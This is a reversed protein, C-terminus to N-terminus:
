KHQPWGEQAFLRRRQAARLRAEELTRRAEESLRQFDAACFVTEEKASRFSREFFRAEEVGAAEITEAHYDYGQPSHADSAAEDDDDSKPDASVESPQSRCSYMLHEGGGGAESEEDSGSGAGGEGRKLSEQSFLGARKRNFSGSLNAGAVRSSRLFLQRQLLARQSDRNLSRGEGGGGEQSHTELSSPLATAAAAALSAGAAEPFVLPVRESSGVSPASCQPTQVALSNSSLFGNFDLQLALAGLSAHSASQRLAKMEELATLM